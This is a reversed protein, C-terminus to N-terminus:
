SILRRKVVEKTFQLYVGIFSAFQRVIKLLECVLVQWQLVEM